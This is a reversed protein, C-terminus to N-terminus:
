FSFLVQSCGGWFVFAKLSTKGLGSHFVRSFCCVSLRSGRWELCCGLRPGWAQPGPLHWPEQCPLTGMRPPPRCAAHSCVTRAVELLQRSWYAPCQQNVRPLSASCPPGLFSGPRWCDCGLFEPFLWQGEPAAAGREAQLDAM